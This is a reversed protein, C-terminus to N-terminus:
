LLVVFASNWKIQRKKKKLCVLRTRDHVGGGGGLLMAVGEVIQEHGM